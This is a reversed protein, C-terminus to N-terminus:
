FKVHSQFVARALNENDFPISDRRHKSEIEVRWFVSSGDLTSYNWLTVTKNKELFTRQDIMTKLKHVQNENNMIM